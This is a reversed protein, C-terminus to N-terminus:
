EDASDYTQIPQNKSKQDQNQRPVNHGFLYYTGTDSPSADEAPINVTGIAEYTIGNKDVYQGQANLKPTKVTGDLIIVDKYDHLATKVTKSNIEYTGTTMSGDCPQIYIEKKENRDPYPYPQLAHDKITGGYPVLKVNTYSSMSINKNLDIYSEPHYPNSYYRYIHNAWEDSMENCSTFYAFNCALATIAIYFFTRM